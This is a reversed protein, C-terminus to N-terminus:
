GEVRPCIDKNGVSCWTTNKSDTWKGSDGPYKCSNNGINDTSGINNCASEFVNYGSTISPDQKNIINYNNQVLKNLADQASEIAISCYPILRLNEFFSVDGTSYSTPLSGRGVPKGTYFTTRCLPSNWASSTSGFCFPGLYINPNIGGSKITDSTLDHPDTCADTTKINDSYNVNIGNYKIQGNSSWVMAMWAQCILNQSNWHGKWENNYKSSVCINTHLYSNDVMASSTQWFGGNGGATISTFAPDGRDLPLNAAYLSVPGAQDGGESLAVAIAIACTPYGGYFINGDITWSYGDTAMIWILGIDVATFQPAQNNQKLSIQNIFDTLTTSFNLNTNNNYLDQKYKKTYDILKPIDIDISNEFYNKNFHSKYLEINTPPLSIPKPTNNSYEIIISNTTIQLSTIKIGSM